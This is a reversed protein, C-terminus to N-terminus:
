SNLAIFKQVLYCILYDEKGRCVIRALEQARKIPEYFRKMGNGSDSSGENM